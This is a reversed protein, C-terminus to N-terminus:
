GTSSPASPIAQRRIRISSSRRTSSPSPATSIARTACLDHRAAHLFRRPECRPRHGRGRRGDAKDLDKKARYAAARMFYLNAEKPDLRIAENMEAIAGDFDRDGLPRHRSQWARRRDQGYRDSGHRHLRRLRRAGGQDLRQRHLLSQDRREDRGTTGVPAKPARGARRAGLGSGQRRGSPAACGRGIGAGGLGSRADLRVPSPRGRCSPRVGFSM